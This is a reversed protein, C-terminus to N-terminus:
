SNSRPSRTGATARVLLNKRERIWQEDVLTQVTSNAKTRYCASVRPPETPRTPMGSWADHMAHNFTCPTTSALMQELITAADDAACLPAHVLSLFVPKTAPGLSQTAAQALAPRAVHM